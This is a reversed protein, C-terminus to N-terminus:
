ATRRARGLVTASDCMGRNSCRDEHPCNWEAVIRPKRNAFAIVKPLCGRFCGISYGSQEIFDDEIAFFAQMYRAIDEDSYIARLDKLLKGDKGGNVPYRAGTKSNYLADFISLLARSLTV